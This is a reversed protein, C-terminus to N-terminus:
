NKRDSFYLIKNENGSLDKELELALQAADNLDKPRSSFITPQLDANLGNRFVYM